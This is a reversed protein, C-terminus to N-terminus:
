KKELIDVPEKEEEEFGSSNKIFETLFRMPIRHRQHIKFTKLEGAAIYQRVSRPHVKLLKATEIVTYNDKVDEPKIDFKRRIM